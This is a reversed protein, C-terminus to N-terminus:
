IKVVLVPYGWHCLGKAKSNGTKASNTHANDADDLFVCVQKLGPTAAFNHDTGYACL